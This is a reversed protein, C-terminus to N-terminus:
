GAPALFRLEPTGIVGGKQRADTLTASKMYAAASDLDNWELIITVENPDAVSRMVYAEGTAGAAKRVPAVSNFVQQWKAFDEVEQRIHIYIM